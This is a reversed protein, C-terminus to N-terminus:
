LSSVVPQFKTEHSLFSTKEKSKKSEVNGSPIAECCVLPLLEALNLLTFQSLSCHLCALVVIEPFLLDLRPLSFFALIYGVLTCIDTGKFM